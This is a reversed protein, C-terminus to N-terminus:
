QLTRPLQFHLLALRWLERYPEDLMQFVTVTDIRRRVIDLLDRELQIWQERIKALRRESTILIGQMHLEMFEEVPPILDTLDCGHINMHLFTILEDVQHLMQTKIRLRDVTVNPDLLNLQKMRKMLRELDEKSLSERTLPDRQKSDVNIAEWLFRIDYCQRNDNLYFEHHSLIPELSIPCIWPPRQLEKSESLHNGFLISSM